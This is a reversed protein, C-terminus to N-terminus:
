VSALWTKVAADDAILDRLQKLVRERFRYIDEVRRGMLRAIERAPPTEVADLVITLYLRETDPLTEMARTLVDLAAALQEDEEAHMLRAEPSSEPGDSIAQVEMDTLLARGGDHGSRAHVKVRLLAAAIDASDPAPVFCKAMHPALTEPRDGLGRWYVLKFVEQDLASLKAVASPLRRRARLSRVFDIVLRDAVRLVYGVLSGRGDYTRLRRCDEEIMALCLTQYAERRPEADDIRPLRRHILRKLDSEFLAEFARWGRQRDAVLLRLMRHGMLDRVKLAIFSELSGKGSYEALLASADAKLNGMIEVFADRADPEGTTSVRCAAWVTAAIGKLFPEVLPPGTGLSAATWFRNDVDKKKMSGSERTPVM